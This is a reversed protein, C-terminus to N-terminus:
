SGQNTRPSRQWVLLALGATLVGLLLIALGQTLLVVPVGWHDASYGALVNGLPLTAGLVMTWIGLIRGRNHEAAGLHIAGQATAFFLILGCGLLTCAPFAFWLSSAQSLAIEAGVVFILGTALFSLTRRQSAFSAVLLAACLAGAGLASLLTGYIREDAQLQRDALAPLVSLVSWGLFALAGALGMLLILTPRKFLYAFGELLSVRTSPHSHGKVAPPLNMRLLAFLVALFSLANLLFCWAPGVRDLLIAGCAPGIARALNFALSNLAVANTTDERGVMDMVLALRAPLEIANVIGTLGAVGLLLGPAIFGAFVVGALFLALVLLAVQCIFVLGLRWVRDALSGGWPGLLCTPLMQAGFVFAAWRSEGTLHYALWSLATAQIWTGTLSVLQGFFYLRYNPHRLSRFTQLPWRHQWPRPVGPETLPSSPPSPIAPHLKASTTLSTSRTPPISPVSM